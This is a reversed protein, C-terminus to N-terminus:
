READRYRKALRTIKSSEDGNGAAKHAVLRAADNPSLAEGAVILRRMEDLLPADVSAMSGSGKTRGRRGRPEGFASLGAEMGASSSSSDTAEIRPLGARSFSVGHLVGEWVISGAVPIVFSFDGAVWDSAVRTPKEVPFAVEGDLDRLSDGGVPWAWHGDGIYVMGQAVSEAWDADAKEACQYLYWFPQPVTGDDEVDAEDKTVPLAGIRHEVLNLQFTAARASIRNEVLYKLILDKAHQLAATRDLALTDAYAAAVM